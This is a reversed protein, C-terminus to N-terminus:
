DKVMHCSLHHHFDMYGLLTSSPQLLKWTFPFHFLLSLFLSFSSVPNVPISANV